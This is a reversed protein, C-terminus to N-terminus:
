INHAHFNGLGKECLPKNKINFHARIGLLEKITNYLSSAM